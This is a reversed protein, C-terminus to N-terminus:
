RGLSEGGCHPCQCATGCECNTACQCATNCRCPLMLMLQVSSIAFPRRVLSAGQYPNGGRVVLSIGEASRSGCEYSYSLGGRHKSCATCASRM